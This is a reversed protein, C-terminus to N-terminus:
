DFFIWRVGMRFRNDFQPYNQIQYNVEPLLLDSFNDYRFFLRFNKVQATIYVESEPYYGTEEPSPYFAGNV